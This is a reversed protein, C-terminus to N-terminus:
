GRTSPPCSLTGTDRVSNTEDAYSASLYSYPLSSRFGSGSSIPGCSRLIPAYKAVAAAQSGEAAVMASWVTAGYFSEPDLNDVFSLTDGALPSTGKGGAPVTITVPYAISRCVQDPDSLCAASAQFLPGQNASTATNRKSLDYSAAASVTVPEDQTAEVPEGVQDSDVAFTTVDLETGNPVESRVSAVFPYNLSTGASQDGLVCVVEQQPLSEWSTGTLPPEPDPLTGPTVSSGALCFPPLNVLQQGKPLTFSVTPATHDEGEFRIGLNYTINDNTRIIDNDASSDNGPSDDASFPETGTLVGLTVALSGDGVAAPAARKGADPEPTQDQTPSAEPQGGADVDDDTDSDEGSGPLQAPQSATAPDGSVSPGPTATEEAGAAAASSLALLLAVLTATATTAARSRVSREGM